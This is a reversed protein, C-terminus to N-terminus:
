SPLYTLLMPYVRRIFAAVAEDAGQEQRLPVDVRVFAADKRRDLFSNRLEALKLEMDGTMTRGRVQYWYYYITGEDGKAYAARVLHVPGAPTEVTMPNSRLLHWGAGPLCNRPSHIPGVGPGGGHYGVYLGVRRGQENDYQRMLYDSPRLVSLTAQDFSVQGVSRWEHLLVPFDQLARAPPVTMERRTHVFLGALGLVLLVVLVKATM